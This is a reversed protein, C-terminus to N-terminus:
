PVVGIPVDKADVLVALPRRSLLLMLLLFLMSLPRRMLPLMAPSVGLVTMVNEGRGVELLM